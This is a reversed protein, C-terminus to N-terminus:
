PIGLRPQPRPAPRQRLQAHHLPGHQQSSPRTQLRPTQSPRHRRLRKRLALGRQLTQRPLLRHPRLRRRPRRRHPRAMGLARRRPLRPPRPKSLRSSRPSHRPSHPRPFNPFPIERSPQPSAASSCAPASNPANPTPSPTSPEAMLDSCIGLLALTGKVGRILSTAPPGVSYLLSAIQVAKPQLALVTPLDGAAAAHYLSSYLAPIDLQDPAALPTAIPPITGHFRQHPSPPM